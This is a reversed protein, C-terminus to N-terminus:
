KSEPLNGSARVSDIIAMARADHMIIDPCSSGGATTKAHMTCWGYFRRRENQCWADCNQCRAFVRPIEFVFGDEIIEVAVPRRQWEKYAM